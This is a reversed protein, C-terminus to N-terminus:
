TAQAANGDRGTIFARTIGEVGAVTAAALGLGGNTAAKAVPIIRRRAPAVLLVAAAGAVAAIVPFEPM